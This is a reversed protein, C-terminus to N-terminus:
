SAGFLQTNLRPMKMEREDSTLSITSSYYRLPNMTSGHYNFANDPLMEMTDSRVVPVNVHLKASILEKAMLQLTGAGITVTGKKDTAKAAALFINLLTDTDLQKIEGIVTENTFTNGATAKHTTNM